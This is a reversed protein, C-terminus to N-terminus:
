GIYGVNFTLSGSYTFPEVGAGSNFSSFQGAAIAVGDKTGAGVATIAVSVYQARTIFVPAGSLETTFAAEIIFTTDNAIGTIKRIENSTANYLYDSRVIEKTFFSGTGTVVTLLSSCTGTKTSALPLPGSAPFGGSGAIFIKTKLSMIPIPNIAQLKIVSSTLILSLVSQYPNILLLKMGKAMISFKGHVEQPDQQM